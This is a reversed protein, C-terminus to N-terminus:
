SAIELGDSSVASFSALTTHARKLFNKTESSTTMRNMLPMAASEPTPCSSHASPRSIKLDTGLAASPNGPVAGAISGAGCGESSTETMVSSGLSLVAATGVSAPSATAGTPVLLSFTTYGLLPPLSYIATMLGCGWVGILVASPSLGLSCNFVPCRIKETKESRSVPVGRLGPLGSGNGVCATASHQLGTVPPITLHQFLDVGGFFWLFGGHFQSDTSDQIAAGVWQIHVHPVDAFRRGVKVKIVTLVHFHVQVAAAYVM